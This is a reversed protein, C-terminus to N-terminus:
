VIFIKVKLKDLYFYTHSTSSETIRTLGALSEELFKKAMSVADGKHDKHIIFELEYCTGDVLSIELKKMIIVQSSKAM